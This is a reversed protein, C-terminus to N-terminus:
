VSPQPAETPAQLPKPETIGSQRTLGDLAASEHMLTNFRCVHMERKVYAYPNVSQHTPQSSAKLLGLIVVRGALTMVDPTGYIRMQVM